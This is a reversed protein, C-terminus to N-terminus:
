GIGYLEPHLRAHEMLAGIPTGELHSNTLRANKVVAMRKKLKTRQSERMEPRLPGVFKRPRKPAAPRNSLGAQFLAQQLAYEDQPVSPLTDRWLKRLRQGCGHRVATGRFPEEGPYPTHLPLTRSDPGFPQAYVNRTSLDKDYTVSEPPAARVRQEGVVETSVRMWHDGLRVAEGRRIEEDLVATTKAEKKGPMVSVVGSLETLFTAGRPYLLTTNHEKHKVAIVLGSRIAEDMDRSANPYSDMLDARNVGSTCRSVLAVLSRRDSVNYKAFFVYQTPQLPDDENIIEVKPNARLLEKVDSDVGEIALGTEAEVDAATAPRRDPRNKLFVLVRAQKELDTLQRTSAALSGGPPGGVATGGGGGLWSPLGHPKGDPESKVGGAGSASSAGPAKERHEERMFKFGYDAM